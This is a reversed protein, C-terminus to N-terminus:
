LLKESEVYCYSLMGYLHNQLLNQLFLKQESHRSQIVIVEVEHALAEILSLALSWIVIDYRSKRIIYNHSDILRVDAEM